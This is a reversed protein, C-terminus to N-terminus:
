QGKRFPEMPRSISLIGSESITNAATHVRSLFIICVQIPTPVDILSYIREEQIASLVRVAPTTLLPDSTTLTHDAMSFKSTYWRSARSFSGHHDQFSSNYSRWVTHHSPTTCVDVLLEWGLTRCPRQLHITNTLGLGLM